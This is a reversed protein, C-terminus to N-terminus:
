TEQSPWFCRIAGARYWAIPVGVPNPPSSPDVADAPVDLWVGAPAGIGNGRRFRVQWGTSSKGGRQADVPRGDAAACCFSGHMRLRSIQEAFPQMIQWDDSGPAPGAAHAIAIFMCLLAVLSLLWLMCLAALTPILGSDPKRHHVPCQPETPATSRAAVMHQINRWRAM